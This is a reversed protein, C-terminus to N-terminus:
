DLNGIVYLDSLLRYTQYVLTRGDASLAVRRVGFLGARDPPEIRRWPRPAGSLPIFRFLEAGGPLSKIFVAEKGVWGLPQLGAPIRDLPLRRGDELALVEPKGQTKGLLLTGGPDLAGNSPTFGEPGFATPLGGDLDQLYIRPPKGDERAFLIIGRNGPRFAAWQFSVLPGRPLERPTGSGVPVLLLRREGEEAVLLAQRGDGSLALATGEGLRLPPSGDTGRLFVANRPGAGDGSETFLVSRGDQSLGSLEAFDLWGLDRAEGSGETLCHISARYSNREALVKGDSRLDHLVLRGPVRCLLRVRGQLDCSHLWLATGASSACFWIERDSRWALGEISKWRTL